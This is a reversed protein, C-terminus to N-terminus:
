EAMYKQGHQKPDTGTYNKSENIGVAQFTMRMHAEAGAGVSRISSHWSRSLLLSRMKPAMDKWTLRFAKPSPRTAVTVGFWPRRKLTPMAYPASTM